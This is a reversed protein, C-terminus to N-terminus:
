EAWEVKHGIREEWAARADILEPLKYTNVFNTGDRKKSGHAGPCIKKLRKGVETDSLLYRGKGAERAHRRYANRFRDCEAQTPWPTEFDSCVIRGETLCDLWWIDFPDLSANKQDLLGQTIPAANIDSCQEHLLKRLLLRYGGQEMGNRMQEFYTRDQKRGNGVDFVAFRREDHSSPVLWDENGIIVVRTRNAVRFPEKNKHEIVHDSGTILDKIQGEAAKDGSWFAEDLAFMLCNELHGNFNGTLYRRNSTVLFHGGLLAGIREVLANKGVGKGGRFVLAVLPKEWPRQVVHAFYGILWRYLEDSGGCVNDRAHDFFAQVADAAEKTPQEDAGLPEYAFGRWLNFYRREGTVVDGGRAPDFVIGDYSRRSPSCMWLKTVNASKKGCQMEWAAFKAHFTAMDLHKVEARDYADRTEHLIHSGGGAVVFAHERNLIDFPHATVDAKPAPQGNQPQDNGIQTPAVPTFAQEPAAVGVPDLGYNYANRVKDSLDAADWPPSCRPSWHEDMLSFCWAEDVGFDKLRAAVKFTTADGGEGEVALPAENLLYHKAREIGSPAVVAPQEAVTRERPKGCRDILWKPADAIAFDKARYEVGDITSGPGVLYGGASRVDVGTAIGDVSQKVPRDVRYVLHRGGTPTHNEYTPTLEFGALELKFLEGDGDKGNKNDVDVGILASRDGFKGTYIGINDDPHSHWMSQIKHIDRTAHRQWGQMRPPAKHNEVIPFVWFGKKALAIAHEYKTM